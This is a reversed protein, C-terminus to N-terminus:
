GRELWGDDLQALAVEDSVNGAHGRGGRGEREDEQLKAIRAAMVGAYAGLRIALSFFQAGPLSLPDDVRHFM